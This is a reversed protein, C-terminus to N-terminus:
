RTRRRPSRAQSASRRTRPVELEGHPHPSLDDFLIEEHREAIDKRGSRGIGLFKLRLPQESTAEKVYRNLAERMVVSVPRGSRRALSQLDSGLGEDLFVTTRKMNCIIAYTESLDDRRLRFGLLGFSGHCGAGARRDTLQGGCGRSIEAGAM